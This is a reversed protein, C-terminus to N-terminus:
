MCALHSLDEPPTGINECQQSARFIRTGLIAGQSVTPGKQSSKSLSLTSPSEAGMRNHYCSSAQSCM